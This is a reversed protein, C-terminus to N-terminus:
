VHIHIYTHIYIYIYIYVHICVCTYLHIYIYIYVCTYMYTYTHIYIYIYIYVYMCVYMCVYMDREREIYIYIYVYFPYVLNVLTFWIIQRHAYASYQIALGAFHAHDSVNGSTDNDLISPHLNLVLPLRQVLCGLSSASRRSNNNWRQAIVACVSLKCNTTHEQKHCHACM